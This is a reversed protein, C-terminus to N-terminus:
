PVIMRLCFNKPFKGEYERSDNCIHITRQLFLRGQHHHDHLSEQSGPFGGINEPDAVHGELLPNVAPLDLRGFRQAAMMAHGFRFNVTQNGFFKLATFNSGAALIKAFDATMILQDPADHRQLEAAQQRPNGEGDAFLVESGDDRGVSRFLQAQFDALASGREDTGGLDHDQAHSGLSFAVSGRPCTSSLVRTAKSIRSSEPVM